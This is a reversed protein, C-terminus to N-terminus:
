VRTVSRLEGYTRLVAACESDLIKVSSLSWFGSNTATIELSSPSRVTMTHTRQSRSHSKRTSAIRPQQLHKATGDRHEVLNAWLAKIQQVRMVALQALHQWIHVLPTLHRDHARQQAIRARLEQVGLRIHCVSLASSFCAAVVAILTHVMSQLHTSSLKM